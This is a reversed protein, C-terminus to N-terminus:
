RSLVMNADQNEIQTYTFPGKNSCRGGRRLGLGEWLPALTGLAAERQAETMAQNGLALSKFVSQENWHPVRELGQRGLDGVIFGGVGRHGKVLRFAVTGVLLQGAPVRWRGKRVM